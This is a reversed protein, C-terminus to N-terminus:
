PSMLGSRWTLDGKGTPAQQLKIKERRACDCALGDRHNSFNTLGFILLQVVGHFVIMSEISERTLMRSVISYSLLSPKQLTIEVLVIVIM